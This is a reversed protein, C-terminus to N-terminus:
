ATKKKRIDKKSVPMMRKAEAKTVFTNAEVEVMEEFGYFGASYGVETYGDHAWKLRLAGKEYDVIVETFIQHLLSNILKRDLPEKTIAKQLESMKKETLPHRAEEIQAWLTRQKELLEEKEAELRRIKGTIAASSGAQEIAQMFKEISADVVELSTEALALDSELGSVGYSDWGGEAVPVASNHLGTILGAEVADYVVTVYQCGASAKARVCVLRIAGGDKGKNVITMASECKPCKALGGLLNRLPRQSTRRSGRARRVDQTRRFLEEDVAAPYFGKLPQGEPVRKGDKMMHPVLTGYAAPNDLVKLIYSKHWYSAKGFAPLKARNYEQAILAQGEGKLCRTFIDKVIKAREPILRYKGDKLEMWAPVRKTMPTGHVRAKMRKNSWAASIRRAKTLSEENARSFLLISALLEVMGEDLTSQSYRRGDSLTVVEVGAEIIGNLTMFAKRATQRSIRDLNEVLLISGKPIIGLRVAELFEGLAGEEVNKGRFASIGLDRYSRKDITLGHATAYAEAAETQRRYSDGKSQEPSSFRLYSFARPKNDSPENKSKTPSM